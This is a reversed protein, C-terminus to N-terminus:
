SMLFTKFAFFYIATHKDNLVNGMLQFYFQQFTSLANKKFFYFSYDM